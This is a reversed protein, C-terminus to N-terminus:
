NLDRAFGQVLHELVETENHLESHHVRLKELATNLKRLSSQHEFLRQELTDMMTPLQGRQILQMHESYDSIEGVEVEQRVKLLKAKSYKCLMIRAVEPHDDLMSIFTLKKLWKDFNDLEVILEIIAKIKRDAEMTEMGRFKLGRILTVIYNMSFAYTPVNNQLTPSNHSTLTRADAEIELLEYIYDLVHDTIGTIRLFLSQHYLEVLASPHEPHSIEGTYIYKLVFGFIDYDFTTMDVKLPQGPTLILEQSNFYESKEALIALHGHVLKKEPGVYLEIDSFRTSGLLKAFTFQDNNPLWEKDEGDEGELDGNISLPEGLQDQTATNHKPEHHIKSFLYGFDEGGVLTKEILEDWTQPITIALDYVREGDGEITSAYGSSIVSTSDSTSPTDIIESSPPTLQRVIAASPEPAAPPSMMFLDM